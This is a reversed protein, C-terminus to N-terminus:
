PLLAKLIKELQPILAHNGDNYIVFTSRCLKEEDPMQKKIRSLIDERSVGDRRVARSIRLEVPAYVTLSFDVDRYFGSEFLIASEIACVETVQAAAWRLFDNNVEPHIVANVKELLIDDSFIQSALLRRDITGEKYIHAGFLRILEARIRPSSDVIRKSEKDAIYVPINMIQLLASVVSKGSGIGGTIGLRIM